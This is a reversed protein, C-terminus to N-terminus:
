INGEYIKEISIFDHQAVMQKIQSKDPARFADYKKLAINSLERQKDAYNSDINNHNTTQCAIFGALILSTSIIRFLMRMQM